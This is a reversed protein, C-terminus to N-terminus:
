AHELLERASQISAETVQEGGILKAIEMVREEQKLSHIKTVSRGAIVDKSVNFHIDGMSAIQPLHTICIVQHSGSVTKLNKGVVWAIRGSIGSDIEDFVLIPIEDTDALVSKLALMIRSIEGGSAVHALPKLDEGPNMSIMFEVLDIGRASVTFNNTGIRIPGDQNETTCMSISFRSKNLGLEKLHSITQEALKKATSKRERSVELCLRSLNKKEEEYESTLRCIDDAVTDIQKLENSNKEWFKIVQEMSGGYSKKLSSFLALRERISELKQPDHEVKAIYMQLSKVIEEISIRISECEKNWRDFLPDVSALSNLNNEAHSLKESISGDGDYLNELIETSIRILKESNSLIKEDQMLKDEEGSKPNAKHIQEVQFLLLEHKEKLQSEKERLLYLEKKLTQFKKFSEKVGSLINSNTGFRDLYDLHNDIKLLTQHAHQGHLDILLDGIRSLLTNSIPSDNAFSRTRGTEHVERRLLLGDECLDISNKTTLSALDLSTPIAFLGEVVAMNCGQRIINQKVKEGLLLSLAGIIISKGAGTEGTLINLGPAFEIHMEDILAYNKIYLKRLM